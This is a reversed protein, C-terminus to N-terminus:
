YCGPSKKIMVWRGKWMFTHAPPFKFLILYLGLCKEWASVFAELTGCFHIHRSSCSIEALAPSRWGHQRYACLDPSTVKPRGRGAAGRRPEGAPRQAGGATGPRGPPRPRPRPAGATARGPPSRRAACSGGSRRKVKTETRGAGVAFSRYPICRSFHRGRESAQVYTQVCTCVRAYAPLATLTLKM